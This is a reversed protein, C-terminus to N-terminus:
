DISQNEEKLMWFPATGFWVITLFLMYVKNTEPDVVGKFVLIPFVLMLFLSIYSVTKLFPKM